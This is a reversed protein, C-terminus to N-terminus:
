ASRGWLYVDMNLQRLQALRRVKVLAWDLNGPLSVPSVTRRFLSCMTLVIAAQVNKSYFNDPLLYRIVLKNYKAVEYPNSGHCLSGADNQYGDRLEELRHALRELSRYRYLAKPFNLRKLALAESQGTEINAKALSEFYSDIWSEM